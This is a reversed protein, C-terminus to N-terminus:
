HLRPALSMDRAAPLTFLVTTGRGPESRAWIKGGHAEVIGKAISLGLGVGRRDERRAQWYRDFLHNLTEPTMGSGTDEVWFCVDGDLMKAGVTLRGGRATFKLANSLLNGFVQVVRDRDAAVDPLRVPMSIQLSLAAAEIRSAHEDVVDDLIVRASWRRPSIELSGREIAQQDLLDAVLKEMHAASRRIAQLRRAIDGEADPSAHLLSESALVITALPTRLDHAVVGLVDDRARTARRSAAYLRSNDIALAVRGALESALAVDFKDFPDAERGRALLWAGLFQGRAVLPLQIMSAIDLQMLAELHEPSAAITELYRSPVHPMHLVQRTEIVTDVLHPRDPEIPACCGARALASKQPDRHRAIPAELAGDEDLLCWVSCEALEAVVRDGLEALTETHDLSGALLGAADMVLAQGHERRRRETIDTSVGGIGTIRGRADFIPFKTTLYFRPKPGAGVAEEREVESRTELVRRDTERLGDATDPPFVDHDTRGIFDAPTLGLPAIPHANITVYRGELDKAFIVAPSADFIARYRSREEELRELLVDQHIVGVLRAVIARFLAKTEESFDEATLSGMQAVGLLEGRSVLPVGYLARVGAERLNRSLVLPDEHACHVLRPTQEAAVLGAFGDGIRVSSASDPEGEIGLSARVRLMDRDRLLVAITDIGELSRMMVALLSNLTEGVDRRPDWARVVEDISALVALRIRIFQHVTALLVQEAARRMALVAGRSDPMASEAWAEEIADRLALVEATIAVLTSGIEARQLAHTSVPGVGGNDPPAASISLPDILDAIVCLLNPVDDRLAPASLPLRQPIERAATEWTRLIDAHHERIFAALRQKTSPM